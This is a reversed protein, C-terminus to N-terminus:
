EELLDIQDLVSPDLADGTARDVDMDKSIEAIRDEVAKQRLKGEIQSRVADLPPTDQTRTDELKVVHWGFQTEVPESITGPEMESVTTGFPEVMMDATFWGLEGGNPGSPGTSHERALDAFDAGGELEELLEKAKDETEVLIHAAKYETPKQADVFDEKYATEVAEDTVANEGIRGLLEGAIIARRENELTLAAAKSLEGEFSQELIAQQILQDLIAEYLTQAPLQAVQPPLGARLVIMHGLTIEADGVTAVVTDATPTDEALAPTIAMGSALFLGLAIPRIQNLM